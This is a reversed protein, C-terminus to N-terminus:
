AFRRLRECHESLGECGGRHPRLAVPRHPWDATLHRGVVYWRLGSGAMEGCVTEGCLSCTLARHVGVPPSPETGDVDSPAASRSIATPPRGRERGGRELQLGQISAVGLRLFDWGGDGISLVPHAILPSMVWTPVATRNPRRASWTPDGSRCISKLIVILECGDAILVYVRWTRFVCACHWVCASSYFM